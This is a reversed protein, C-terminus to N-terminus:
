DLIEDVKSNIDKVVEKSYESIWLYREPSVILWKYIWLGENIEDTLKNLSLMIVYYKWWFEFYWALQPFHRDNELKKAFYPWDLEFNKKLLSVQNSVEEKSNYEVMFYSDDFIHFKSNIFDLSQYDEEGKLYREIDKWFSETINFDYIDTFWEISMINWHINVWDLVM